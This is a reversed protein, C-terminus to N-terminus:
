TGFMFATLLFDLGLVSISSLVVSNTTARGIGETTPISEYGQYLAILTVVVGFCLSKILGNIVDLRFDVANQMNAWFSGSDVHLLAVCVYWASYIAVMNFILALIPMAIMGAILRPRIIYTLPNVAMMELASLQETAKMFGVEATLASGARGAFLLAAVVPGLERILSLSVLQGLAETAGFRSLVTYGQLALVMGIFLGSLAIILLSLVGVSYLQATILSFEQKLNTPKQLLSQAFLCALRGLAQVSAISSRGVKIVSQM